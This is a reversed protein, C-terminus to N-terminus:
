ELGRLVKLKSEAMQKSVPFCFPYGSYGNKEGEFRLLSENIYYTAEKLDGSHEAISALYYYSDAFQENREISKLLAEKAEKYEGNNLYLVGLTHYDYPGIYGESPYANITESVLEIAKQNSGLHAYNIGLVIRMNLAGGPTNQPYSGELSYFRELDRRCYEYSKHQFYWYARYTLYSLSDLDVAKNLLSMGDKLLGRKLYAVSKEYYAWAYNPNIAIASDFLLQSERSGQKFDIARRGYECALREKSNEALLGCDGQAWLAQVFFLVMAMILYPKPRIFSPM